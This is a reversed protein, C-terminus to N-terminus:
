RGVLLSAVLLFAYIAAFVWPVLAELNSISAYGKRAPSEKIRKWEDAYPAAPLRQEMENIVEFKAGALISYSRILMWWVGCVVIGAVPLAVLWASGGAPKHQLALGLIAVFGTNITLFYRSTANRREILKETQEAYYLYLSLLTAGDTTDDDPKANM